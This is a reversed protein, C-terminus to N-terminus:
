AGILAPSATFSAEHLDSRTHRLPTAQDHGAITLDVDVGAEAFHRQTAAEGFGDVATAPLTLRLRGDVVAALYRAPWPQTPLAEIAEILERPTVVHDTGAVVLSDAKGVVQSTAPFGALECTLPEDPLCRAVDRTDYRLVPMCDRYPFFPTIVLTGLAGPAAPEGTRLDLLETMGSTVDHHLHRQSCTSATVPIVETVSFSDVIQPVGFVRCAADALSPSLVESGVTIRRLKFDDQGIGRRRAATVLEGLYSPYTSLITAGGETLADLADDPTMIGLLRCGTRTLRCIGAYLHNAAIARSSVNVQQIDSPRLDDRLLAGLAGLASWLDMEYRSLWIETPHGTTGTTRTSLYRRVDTCLFDGPREVLDRKVTVPIARLSETDLQRPETPAAALRRAYFTSRVALRRATRRLCRNTAERQEQPDPIPAGLLADADAGPVGFEALTVLADDVLKELNRTSLRRGSVLGVAMRVQRVGTEFM